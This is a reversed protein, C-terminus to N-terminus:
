LFRIFLPLLNIVIWLDKSVKHVIKFGVAVVYVVVVSLYLKQFRIHLVQNRVVVTEFLYASDLLDLNVPEGLNFVHELLEVFWNVLYFIWNQCCIVINVLIQSEFHDFIQHFSQLFNILIRRVWIVKRKHLLGRRLNLSLVGLSPGHIRLLYQISNASNLGDFHLLKIGFHHYILPLRRLELALHIKQVRWHLFPERLEELFVFIPKSNILTLIQIVRPLKHFTSGILSLLGRNLGDLM